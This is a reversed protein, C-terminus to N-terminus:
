PQSALRFESHEPAPATSGDPAPPSAEQAPRIQLTAFSRGQFRPESQLRRLYDPLEAPDTMRGRLELAENSAQLHVGTIWVAPHAQRALAELDASHGQRRGASGSDLLAQLRRASAEQERLRLLQQRAASDTDSRGAAGLQDRLADASALRQRSQQQLQHTHWQLGVSALLAGAVLLAQLRLLPALAATSRHQCLTPSYLNISQPM